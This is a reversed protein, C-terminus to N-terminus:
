DIFELEIGAEDAFLALKAKNKEKAQDVFGAIDELGLEPDLYYDACIMFIIALSEKFDKPGNFDKTAFTAKTAIEPKEIIEINVLM